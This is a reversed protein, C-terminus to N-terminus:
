FQCSSQNGDDPFLVDEPIGLYQSIRRRYKWGKARGSLIESLRQIRMGLDKAMQTENVGKEALMQRREIRNM